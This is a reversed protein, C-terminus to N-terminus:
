RVAADNTQELDATSPKHNGSRDEGVAELVAEKCDWSEMASARPTERSCAHASRSDMQASAAWSRWVSSGLRRSVRAVSSARASFLLMGLISWGWWFMACWCWEVELPLGEVGLLMPTLLLMPLILLLLGAIDSWFARRGGGERGAMATGLM